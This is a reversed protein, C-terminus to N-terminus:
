RDISRCLSIIIRLSSSSSRGSGQSVRSMTKDGKM